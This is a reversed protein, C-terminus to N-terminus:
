NLLVMTQEILSERQIPDDISYFNREIEVYQKKLFACAKVYLTPNSVFKIIVNGCRVQDKENCEIGLGVSIMEKEVMHTIIEWQTADRLDDCFFRAGILWYNGNGCNFLYNMARFTDVRLMDFNILSM